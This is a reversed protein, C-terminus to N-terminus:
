DKVELDGWGSKAATSRPAGWDEMSIDEGTVAKTLHPGALAMAGQGSVM